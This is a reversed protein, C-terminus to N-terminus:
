IGYKKRRRWLTVTDMGLVAAASEISPAAALVGRIHLEEVRELSVPDGLAVAGVRNLVGRPLDPAEVVDGRCVLVAREVLNRLERVNGPWSHARLADLAHPSFGVVPRRTQRAFFALYREALLAVDDPRHRLPPLDIAVGGLATLLDPRFRGDAVAAPLDASTTVIVRVDARRPAFDAQREFEGDQVLRLLKPQTAAPLQDVDEVLLTGGDCYPVRGPQEALRGAPMRKASGFWEAELLAPTPARCGAIALPRDARPGWAHIARALTRKGTGPEGRILVAGAGDAARRALEVAERMEASTTQYLDVAPGASAVVEQLAAARRALALGEAAKRVTLKVQTPTFPKPLYDTAGRKMAAVATDVAAHATIVVVRTWPGGALLPAILDLGDATGLRLDLLVVDFARRGVAALAAEATHASEVAHGTAQLCMTLMRCIDAEDDVVLVRVSNRTPDPTDAM